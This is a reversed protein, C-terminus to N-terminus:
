FETVTSEDDEIGVVIGVVDIGVVVIAIVVKAVEVVPFILNDAM